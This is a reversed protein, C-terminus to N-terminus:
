LLLIVAACGALIGGTRYLKGSKGYEREADKEAAELLGAAHRINKVQEETDTMGLREALMYLIEKDTGLLANNETVASALGNRIGVKETREAGKKFMELGQLEGATRLVSKIDRKGYMIENELICLASITRTLECRRKKLRESAAFGWVASACVILVAGAFKFM